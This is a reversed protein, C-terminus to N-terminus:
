SRIDEYRQKGYKKDLQEKTPWYDIGTDIIPFEFGRTRTVYYRVTSCKFGLAMSIHQISPLTEISENVLELFDSDKMMKRNMTPM